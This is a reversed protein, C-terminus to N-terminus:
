QFINCPRGFWCISCDQFTCFGTNGSGSAPEVDWFRTKPLISSPVMGRIVLTCALLRQGWRQSGYFAKDKMCDDALVLSPNTIQYYGPTLKSRGREQRAGNQNCSILGLYRPGYAHHLLDKEQRTRASSDATLFTLQVCKHWSHTM